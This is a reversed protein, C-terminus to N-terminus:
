QNPATAVTSLSVFTARAQEAQDVKGARKYLSILRVLIEKSTPQLARALELHKIAENEYGLTQLRNALNMHGEFEGVARQFCIYAEDFKERQVQALGLNNWYRQQGPALKVARKLYKAARDYDGNKFHLYGLNNLFEAQNSDNRVAAEFSKFAWQRMGKSEYAIGLLNHAEANKPDLSIASNLEEFAANINRADILTRARAVKQRASLRNEEEKTARSEGTAPAAHTRLGRAEPTSVLNADVVRVTPATEFKKVDKESLRHLKNDDKKGAGFLRGIAKFPAKMARVFANGKKSDVDSIDPEVFLAEMEAETMLDSHASPIPHAVLALMLTLAVITLSRKLM